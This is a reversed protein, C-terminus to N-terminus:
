NKSALQREKKISLMTSVSSYTSVLYPVCITLIIKFLRDPSIQGHLLVDGQNIITLVFGVVLATTGARKIVPRSICLAFWENM